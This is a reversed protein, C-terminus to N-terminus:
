SPNASPGATRRASRIVGDTWALRRVEWPAVGAARCVDAELRDARVRVSRWVRDDRAADRGDAAPAAYRRRWSEFRADMSELRQGARKDAYAVIREERSAFAAWRRFAEGDLLRTVPHGAVARALEAHGARTLWAASGEGHPLDRAPDGAPLAKDVDHLLAAAEVLRRDVAVGRSEIREALWAAVEAVARAHRIFWAPPDLSLLLAAAEVRGPVTM